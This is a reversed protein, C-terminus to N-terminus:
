IFVIQTLIRQSSQFNILKKRIKITSKNINKVFFKVVNLLSLYTCNKMICKIQDIKTLYKIILTFESQFFLNNYQSCKRHVFFLLSILLSFVVM